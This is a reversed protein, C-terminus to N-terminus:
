NTSMGFISVKATRPTLPGIGQLHRSYEGAEMVKSRCSQASITLSSSVQLYAHTIPFFNRSPLKQALCDFCAYIIIYIKVMIRCIAYRLSDYSDLVRTLQAIALPVDQLSKYNRTDIFDFTAVTYM